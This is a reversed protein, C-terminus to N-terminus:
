PNVRHGCSFGDQQDNHGSKDNQDQAIDRKLHYRLSPVRWDPGEDLAVSHAKMIDFAAIGSRRAHDQEV